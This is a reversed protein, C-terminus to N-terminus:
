GMRVEDKIHIHFEELVGSNKKYCARLFASTASAKKVRMCNAFSM